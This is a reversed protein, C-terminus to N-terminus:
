ASEEARRESIKEKIENVQNYVRVKYDRVAKNREAKSLPLTKIQRKFESIGADFPPTLKKEGLFRGINEVQEIEADKMSTANMVNSGLTSM